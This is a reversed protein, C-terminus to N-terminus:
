FMPREMWDPPDMGKARFQGPTVLGIIPQTKWADMGDHHNEDAASGERELPAPDCYYDLLALFEAEKITALDAAAEKGRAYAANEAVIGVEGMVGLDIATAKLGLARRHRALADQFTNGAAYNAQSPSGAIGAVSSLMIFFDLDHPLLDHLTQSTAVKSRTSTTWDAFTMNEFISDKLVMAAQLCGRIPPMSGCAELAASLSDPSAVDCAPTEVRVGASRLQDLLEHAAQSKPGSRSLLILNRAGRRAMWQAASRGLGGLGGVIIYTANEAFRSSPKHQLFTPVVHSPDINLVIKGENKGNQMFRFASEIDSISFEHLPAATKVSGNSVRDIIHQLAERVIWPRTATIHDVAIASFSVNDAFRAMPLKGNAEIDAKGLEIFRGFPAISEWSAALREGSLSNLVVDVGRGQTLRMIDKAFSVDRSHLIHDEPIYYLDKMLQRKEHSGVTVFVDCGISQAIQVAMQGTGGAGSHILISDEKRLRAVTILSHYATVGTVPLSAAQTFSMDDPIKVPLQFNCRAYTHICGMIAACVRDGRQLTTCNSGVRTIRGSCEAGVTSANLRGLVVLLDRFNVGVAQVQIEVEDPQLEAYSRSDELFHLSDLSGPDAVALALPSAEGFAQQRTTPTTRSHVESSLQQVEVVRGVMLTGNRETYELEMGGSPTSTVLDLVKNVHEAWVQHSDLHDELAVTIFSTNAQETSVVRALGQIMGVKAFSSSLANAATAWIVRGCSSFLHQLLHFQSEDLNHLFVEDLELLFLLIDDKGVMGPVFQEITVPKCVTHGQQQSECISGAVLAQASSQPDVVVMIQQPETGQINEDATAVVISMEHCAQTEYDRLTFDVGSFGNRMLVQTWESETICPSWERWKETSLWWGSLTGFAFGNRLLDPKTIELLILKGGPKLLKRVNRVTIELSPTAHLVWAAVVVDYSGPEYGQTGPDTEINLLKFNPTPRASAFKERAKEFYGESIDTYDYQSLKPADSEHEKQLLPNLIHGTISGTGAGVEVVKLGPNKHAYLELYNWLRRCSPIKDCVEQYHAEALGDHFMLELPSITGEVISMLSRGVTVFMKGESSGDNVRDILSQMYTEDHILSRWDCGNVSVEGSEYRKAQMGLWALYRQLHPGHPVVNRERVGDLTRFVFHLLVLTLDQYFTTPEAVDAVVPNCYSVIQDASLCALDPKWDMSYCIRRPQSEQRAGSGSVSTTQMHSIVMKVNGEDDLAFMSSDTGRLGQLASSSFARLQTKEPYSLGTSSIWAEQIRTVAAGDVVVETAGKTLAIWMLQGPADLTVPHVVHEQRKHQSREATWQFLRITGLSGNAGDWALDDLARFSPGYSLGNKQFHEYMRSTEVRQSCLSRATEYKDLYYQAREVDRQDSDLESRSAKYHVQITGRCNEQWEPGERICIRYEASTNDNDSVSKLPRMFLQVETRDSSDIAIPRSFVADKISYGDILRGPEALQKAGEIAMVVMGTAPYIPQGNVKHDEIWPAETTDFFKRWRPELNNWDPAPTGLLETRPHKRLRTNKSTASEYWYTRSHDFPYEPLDILVSPQLTPTSATKNAEELAASHGLSWLSGVLELLAGADAKQRSLVYSYRINKKPAFDEIIRQAPRRLAPHPGIEILDHVVHNPMGGLQRTRRSRTVLNKLAPFFKVPQVMNDVWYAAKSLMGVDHMSAGAVTSIMEVPHLCTEAPRVLDQLCREYEAAIGQMFPSHYAVGTKLKQTPVGKTELESKVLDVDEEVGSLTINQSSNICAIHVSLKHLTSERRRLYDDMEVESLNVAIMGGNRQGSHALLSALRGRHYSVKCASELSLGGAAYAAAIEGSSHGIVVSPSVNFTRLLEYLAIQLATTLPQSCKPDHIRASDEGYMLEDFISWECGLELLAKDFAELSQRFVPYIMLKMGMGNYQAGQGTFIFCIARKESSRIPKSVRDKIGVLASVSDAVAFSKWPLSSRHCALTNALGRMYVVERAGSVMELSSFYLSWSDVMRRLGDEDVASWVFVKSKAQHTTTDSLGNCKIAGRDDVARACGSAGNVFSKCGSVSTSSGEVRCSESGLPEDEQLDNGHSAQGERTCHRGRLNRSRLYHYADDLIAHSNSGGFGFSAVSARRLGTTPWPTKTTPFKLNFFEADISPNITQFNANPPIIGKELVMVTKILGAIGSGGELHGINGKVAGIYLPDEASRAKRFASGIAAAEIPDGISTGTGHAELFRTFTYDLRAKRYTEKILRAQADGSPQTVGATHGDQNSGTARIIARITNGDKIADHLRKIVVVGFGEGRSYGNARADFSYCRGDPSLFNMNMLSLVGEVALIMSGGAVLAMSSDRNRLGQCAIDLAMLSSSCASDLNVSPGTFHFFWSLRNAVMNMSVGTATYKPMEDVDKTIISKYDDTMSGYVDRLLKIPASGNELAHYATELLFRHQPDIAIAETASIGFFPADFAGLDGELFHAGPVFANNERDDDDHHFAELNIRDKPWATMACRKEELMQWFSQPNRADQPYKLAFGIIAIPELGDEDPTPLEASDLFQSHTDQVM